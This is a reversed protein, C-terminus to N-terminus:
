CACGGFLGGIGLKNEADLLRFGIGERPEVLGRCAMLGEFDTVHIQAARGSNKLPKWRALLFNPDLDLPHKEGRTFGVEKTIM